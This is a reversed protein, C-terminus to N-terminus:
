IQLFIHCFFYITLQLLGDEIALGFICLRNGFLGQFQTKVRQSTNVISECLADLTNALQERAAFVEQRLQDHAGIGHGGQGCLRRVLRAGVVSSNSVGWTARRSGHM